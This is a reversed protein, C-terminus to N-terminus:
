TSLNFNCSVFVELSYFHFAYHKEWRSSYCAKGGNGEEFEEKGREHSDLVVSITNAAQLVSIANYYVVFGSYGVIVASNVVYFETSKLKNLEDYRKQV